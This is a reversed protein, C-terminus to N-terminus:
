IRDPEAYEVSPDREMLERALASVEAVSLKKGIGVINAGSATSHLAKMAVGFQQGARNLIASRAPTMAAARAAGKRAPTADKYKVIMRDTHGIAMEAQAAFEPTGAAAVLPGAGILAAVCLTLVAPKSSHSHKM